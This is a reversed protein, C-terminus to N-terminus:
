QLRALPFRTLRLLKMIWLSMFCDISRIIVIAAMSLIYNLSKNGSRIHKQTNTHTHEHRNFDVQCDAWAEASHRLTNCNPPARNKMKISEIAISRSAPLQKLEFLLADCTQWQACQVMLFSKFGMDYNIGPRDRVRREDWGVVFVNYRLWLACVFVFSLPKERKM